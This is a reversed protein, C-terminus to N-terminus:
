IDRLASASECRAGTGTSENQATVAVVCWNESTAATCSVSLM